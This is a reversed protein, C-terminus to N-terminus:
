DEGESEETAESVEDEEIADLLMSLKSLEKKSDM